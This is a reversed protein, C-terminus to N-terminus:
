LILRPNCTQDSGDQAREIENEAQTYLGSIVVDEIMPKGVEGTSYSSHFIRTWVYDCAEFLFAQGYLSLLRWDEPGQFAIAVVLHTSRPVNLRCLLMFKPPIM